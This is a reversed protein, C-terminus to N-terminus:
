TVQAKVVALQEAGLAHRAYRANQADNLQAETPTEEACQRRAALM